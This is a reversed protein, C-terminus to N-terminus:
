SGTDKQNRYLLTKLWFRRIDYSFAGASKKFSIETYIMFSIADDANRGSM